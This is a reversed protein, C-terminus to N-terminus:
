FTWSWAAAPHIATLSHGHFETDEEEKSEECAEEKKQDPAVWFVM